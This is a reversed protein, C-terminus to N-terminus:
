DIRIYEYVKRQNGKFSISFGTNIGINQYFGNTFYAGYQFGLNFSVSPHFQYQIGTNAYLGLGSFSNRDNGDLGGNSDFLNNSLSGQTLNGSDITITTDITTSFSNLNFYSLGGGLIPRIKKSKWRYFGGINGLVYTHGKIETSFDVDFTGGNQITTIDIQPMVVERLINQPNPFSGGFSLSTNLYFNNKINRYYSIGYNLVSSPVYLETNIVPISNTLILGFGHEKKQDMPVLYYHEKIQQIEFEWLKKSKIDYIFNKWNVEELSLSVFPEIDNTPMADTYIFNQTAFLDTRIRTHKEFFTNNGIIALHTEKLNLNLNQNNFVKNLSDQVTEIKDFDKVIVLVIKSDIAQTKLSALIADDENTIVVLSPHEKEGSANIIELKQSFALVPLFLLIFSKSIKKM